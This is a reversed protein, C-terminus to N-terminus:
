KHGGNKRKRRKAVAKKHRAVSRARLKDYKKPDTSRPSLDEFALLSSFPGNYVGELEKWKQIFAEFALGSKEFAEVMQEIQSPTYGKVAKEFEDFSISMRESQHTEGDIRTIVEGDRYVAEAVHWSGDRSDPYHQRDSEHAATGQM